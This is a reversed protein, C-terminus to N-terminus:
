APVLSDDLGLRLVVGLVGEGRGEHHLHRSLGAAGSPLRRVRWGAVRAKDRPGHPVWLCAAAIISQESM